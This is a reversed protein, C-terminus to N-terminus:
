ATVFVLIVLIVTIIVLVLTFPRMKWGLSLGIGAGRKGKAARAAGEAQASKMAEPGLQGSLARFQREQNTRPVWQCGCRQCAQVVVTDSPKPDRNGTARFYETALAADVKARPVATSQITTAGCKPCSPAPAAATM